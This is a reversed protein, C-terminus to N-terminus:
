AIGRPKSGCPRSGRRGHRDDAAMRREADASRRHHPARVGRRARDDLGAFRDLVDRHVLPTVNEDPQLDRDDVLEVLDAAGGLSPDTSFLLAVDVAGDRLAQRTVPGGTDLEVFEEFRLGYTRRLGPLCLPRSPCEPPGGFTLSRRGTQSTASRASTSGGRPRAPSSSPTARGRGAGARARDVTGAASGVRLFQARRGRTSPSSRSWARRSRRPRRARPASSSPGGCRSGAGSSRRATCSPSCCARPSTSRASRSSTTTSGARSSRLSATTGAPRAAARARRRVLHGHGGRGSRHIVVPAGEPARVRPGPRTEWTPRLTAGPPQGIPVACTAVPRRYTRRGASATVTTTPRTTSPAPISTTRSADTDSTSSDRNSAM